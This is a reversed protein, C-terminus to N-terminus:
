EFFEYEIEGAYGIVKVNTTRVFLGKKETILYKPNILIDYETPALAEYLAAQKFSTMGGRDFSKTDGTMIARHKPGSHFLRFYTKFTVEGSLQIDIARTTGTVPAINAQPVVGVGTMNRQTSTCSTLCLLVILPVFFLRTM